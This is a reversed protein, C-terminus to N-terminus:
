TNAALCLWCREEPNHITQPLQGGSIWDPVHLEPVASKLGQLGLSLEQFLQSRTWSSKLAPSLDGTEQLATGSSLGGPVSSSCALMPLAPSSPQLALEATVVPIRQEPEAENAATPNNVLSHCGTSSNM